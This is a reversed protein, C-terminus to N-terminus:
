RGPSARDKLRASRAIGLVSDITIRYRLDTGAHALEYFWSRPAEELRRLNTERAPVGSESFVLRRGRDTADIRAGGLLNEPLEVRVVEGRTWSRHQADRLRRVEARAAAALREEDRDVSLSRASVGLLLVTILLVTAMEVLSLGAMRSRRAADSRFRRGGAGWTIM